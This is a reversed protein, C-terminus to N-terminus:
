RNKLELYKMKYKMYKDYHSDGGTMPHQQFVTSSAGSFAANTLSSSQLNIEYLFMKMICENRHTKEDNSRVTLGKVEFIKKIKEDIVVDNKSLFYELGQYTRLYMNNFDGGILVYLIGTKERLKAYNISELITYLINSKDQGNFYDTQNPKITNRYKVSIALIYFASELAQIQFLSCFLNCNNDEHDILSEFFDNINIQTWIRNNFVIHSMAPFAYFELTTGNNTKKYKFTRNDNEISADRVSQLSYSDYVNKELYKIHQVIYPETTKIYEDNTTYHHNISMSEVSYSYSSNLNLKGYYEQILVISSELGNIIDKMKINKKKIKSQVLTILSFHLNYFLKFIFFQYFSNYIIYTFIEVFWDYNLELSEYKEKLINLTAIKQTAFSPDTSNNLIFTYIANLMAKIAEIVNDILTIIESTDLLNNFYEMYQKDNDSDYYDNLNLLRIANQPNTLIDKILKMDKLLKEFHFVNTHCTNNFGEIEYEGWICSKFDKLDLNEELKKIQFLERLDMLSYYVDTWHVTNYTSFQMNKVGIVIKLNLIPHDSGGPYSGDIGCSEKVSCFPETLDDPSNFRSREITYELKDSM